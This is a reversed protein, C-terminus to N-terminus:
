FVPGAVVDADYQDSLYIMLERGSWDPNDAILQDVVAFAEAMSTVEGGQTRVFAALALVEGESM